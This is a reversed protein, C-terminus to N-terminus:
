QSSTLDGHTGVTHGVWRSGLFWKDQVLRYSLATIAERYKEIVLKRPIHTGFPPILSSIGTLVSFTLFQIQDQNTRGVVDVPPLAGVATDNFALSRMLFV